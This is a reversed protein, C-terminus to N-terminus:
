ILTQCSYGTQCTNKALNNNVIKYKFAIKWRELTISCHLTRSDDSLFGGKKDNNSIILFLYIM